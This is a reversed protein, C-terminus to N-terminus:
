LSVRRVYVLKGLAAIWIAVMGTTAILLSILLSPPIVKFITRYLTVVASAFTDTFSYISAAQYALALAYPYPARIVPLMWFIFLPLLLAAGGFIFSFFIAMQKKQQIARNEELRVMWRASFGQVPSLVPAAKLSFELKQISESLYKCAECQHLHEQLTLEEERSITERSFIWDEFPQHNSKAM